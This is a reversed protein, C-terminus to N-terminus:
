LYFFLSYYLSSQFVAYTSPMSIPPNYWPNQYGYPLSQGASDVGSTLGVLQNIVDANLIVIGNKPYFLGLSQYPINGSGDTYPM